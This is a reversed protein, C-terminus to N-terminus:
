FIRIKRMSTFATEEKMRMTTLFDKTALWKDRQELFKRTKDGQTLHKEIEEYHKRESSNLREKLMKIQKGTTEMKNDLDDEAASTPKFSNIPM